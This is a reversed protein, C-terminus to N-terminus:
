SAQSGAEPQRGEKKDAAMTHVAGPENGEGHRTQVINEGLQLVEWAAVNKENVSKESLVRGNKGEALVVWFREYV